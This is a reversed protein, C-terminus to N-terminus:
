NQGLLISRVNGNEKFSLFLLYPALFSIGGVLALLGLFIGIPSFKNRWVTWLGSLVLIMLFDFNFQGPWSVDLIDGFFIPLLDWGNASGVALTYFLILSTQLFLLCRFFIM